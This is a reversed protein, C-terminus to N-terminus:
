GAATRRTPFPIIVGGADRPEGASLCRDGPFPIVRAETVPAPPVGFGRAALEDGRKAAAAIRIAVFTMMLWGAVGAAVVAHSTTMPPVRRAFVPAGVTVLRTEAFTFAAHFEWSLRSSDDEM